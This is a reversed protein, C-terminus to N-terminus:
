HLGQHNRIITVNEKIMVLWITYICKGAQNARQSVPEPVSQPQTLKYKQLHTHEHLSMCTSVLPWCWIDNRWFGGSQKRLWHAERSQNHKPVVPLRPDQLRQRGQASLVPIIGWLVSDHSGKMRTSRILNLDKGTFPMCRILSGVYDWIHVCAYIHTHTNIVYWIIWGSLSYIWYSKACECLPLHVEDECESCKWSKFEVRLLLGKGTEDLM